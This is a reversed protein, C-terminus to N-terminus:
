GDANMEINIPYENVCSIQSGDPFYARFQWHWQGPSPYAYTAKVTGAAASVITGTVPPYSATNNGKPDRVLLSVSSAGALSIPNGDQDTFTDDHEIANGVYYHIKATM